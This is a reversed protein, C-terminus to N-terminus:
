PITASKRIRESKGSLAMSSWVLRAASEEEATDAGATTRHARQGPAQASLEARLELANLLIKM